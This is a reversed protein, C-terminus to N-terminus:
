YQILLNKLFVEKLNFKLSNIERKASPKNKEKDDSVRKSLKLCISAPIAQVM